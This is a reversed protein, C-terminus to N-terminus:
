VGDPFKYVQFPLFKIIKAALTVVDDEGYSFNQPAIM